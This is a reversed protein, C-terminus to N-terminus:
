PKKKQKRRKILFFAALVALVLLVCVPLLLSSADFDFSSGGSSSGSSKSNDSDYGCQTPNPFDKSRFDKGCRMFGPREKNSEECWKCANEPDGKLAYILAIKAYEFSCQYKIRRQYECSKLYWEIATDYQAPDQYIKALSMYIDALSQAPDSSGNTNKYHDEDTQIAKELYESKNMGIGRYCNWASFYYAAEVEHSGMKPGLAVLKECDAETNNSVAYVATMLLLICAMLLIKKAMMLYRLLM